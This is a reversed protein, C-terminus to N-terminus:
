ATVIDEEWIDIFDLGITLQESVKNLDLCYSINKYLPANIALTITSCNEPFGIRVQQNAFYQSKFDKCQVEVKFGNVPKLSISDVVKCNVFM